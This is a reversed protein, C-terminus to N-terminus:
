RLMSVRPAADLAPPDQSADCFWAAFAGAAVASALTPGLVALGITAAENHKTGDLLWVDVGISVAGAGALGALGAAWGARAGSGAAGGLGAGAAAFIPPLVAYPVGVAQRNFGSLASGALLAASAGFAAGTGAGIAAAGAAILRDESTADVALAHPAIALAVIAILM